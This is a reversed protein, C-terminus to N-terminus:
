TFVRKRITIYIYITVKHRQTCEWDHWVRQLGICQLGGPEETWRVEWDLISSHTAMGKEPGHPRLSDSVVSRSWKREKRPKGPPESPLADAQLAPSRPEIGPNPLDGPSPFPLGSWCEQRSFGMSPPAQYAVPWPTAFLQVHSLSKVKKRKKRERPLAQAPTHYEWGLSLLYSEKMEQMAPLNKVTQAVPSAMNRPHALDSWNHGVRQSGISQIRGPEETWLIRWTLISSHTALDEGLPDEWGPISSADRRDGTNAPPNKVM